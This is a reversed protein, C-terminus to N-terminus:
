GSAGKPNPFSDDENEGPRENLCAFDKEILIQLGEGASEVGVSDSIVWLRAQEAPVFVRISNEEYDGFVREGPYAELAYVLKRKGPGFDVTEEIKGTIGFEEVESRTLRLRVSNGRIRLKM